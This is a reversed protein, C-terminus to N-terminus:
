RPGRRVDKMYTSSGAHNRDSRAKAYPDGGDFGRPPSSTSRLSPAGCTQPLSMKGGKARTALGSNDSARDAWFKFNARDSAIGSVADQPRSYSKLRDQFSM